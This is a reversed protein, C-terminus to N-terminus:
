EVVVKKLVTGDSHLYFLIANPKAETERGLYDFIKIVDKPTNILENEFIGLTEPFLKVIWYDDGGNNGIVDLSGSDELSFSGSTGVFAFGEDNTQILSRGYDISNGALTRQWSLLGNSDVKVLWYDYSSASYGANVGGIVFGLDTTQFISNGYEVANGGLCNQWILTGTNDIKVIWVDSNGHNGVVDGNNSFTSGVFLFSNDSTQIISSCKAVNGLVGDNASGGFSKQWVLSGVNDTKVVWYDYMGHNGSVDGDNSNSNGSIVLENNNTEIVDLASDYQSGGFCKQWILSGSNNLKILWCDMSGHNGSVNANNSKTTGCVIFGGDNTQRVSYAQEDQTGGYSKQWEILGNPNTKLIWFDYSGNNSTVDGDNSSTYGAIILGGDSTEQVSEAFDAGSGGYSKQWILTGMSNLKVIWYDFSGHNVTVDSDSSESSGVVIFGGDNTQIISKADDMLSGGASVQWEINPQTYVVLSTFIFLLTLVFPTKIFLSNKHNKYFKLKECAM